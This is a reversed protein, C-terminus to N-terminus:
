QRAKAALEVQKLAPSSLVRGDQLVVLGACEPRMTLWEMGARSGLILVVKAAIEADLVNPAVVTAALVDTEAPQGSRPDIIHHRLRGDQQWRRYDIGSTAVGGRGLRLTGLIEGPSRPDEISIMWPEGRGRLGSMALDGGADVLTPGSTELMRAAQHAAWGKAVGGFDLQMGAPLRVTRTKPDLEIERLAPVTPKEWTIRAAPANGAAMREFSETYGAALVAPLVAASVLGSSVVEARIAAQLVQWFVRSVRTPIGGARNLQNLESEPRFRSLAAEWAEFVQPLNDLALPAPQAASHEVQAEMRCGM